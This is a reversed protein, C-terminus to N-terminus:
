VVASELRCSTNRSFIAPAVLTANVSIWLKDLGSRFNDSRNRRKPANKMINRQGPPGCPRILSGPSGWRVSTAALGCISVGIAGVCRIMEADVGVTDVCYGPTWFHNGWCPRQRLYAFQKFVRIATRGKLIGMLNSISVKPPVMAILHVHDSQVNLEIVDCENQGSFVQICTKVEEGAEGKLVRYRCKPVWVLHYQCHWLAHSLKRFRSM